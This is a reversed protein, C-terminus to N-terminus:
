ITLVKADYGAERVYEYVNRQQAEDECSVVVQFLSVPQKEASLDPVSYDRQPKESAGGAAGVTLPTSGVSGDVPTELLSEITSDDFSFDFGSLGLDDLSLDFDQDQMLSLVEAQLAEVDIEGLAAIANDSVRVARKQSESLGTKVLVPVVKLGAEIAALRRGHGALIVNNEDIVIPSTWGHEQIQKALARIQEPPHKKANGEYPVLTHIDRRELQEIM